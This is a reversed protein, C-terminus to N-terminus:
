GNAVRGIDTSLEFSIPLHDSGVDSDPTGDERVLSSKGVSTIIQLMEDDFSDLLTPRILVQDFMHWFYTVPTTGRYYYTGPPGDVGSGFFRWMPNYLFTREEGAVVRSSKAALRRTMVAHLCESSIVGAEFPNMNLDGVVVTRQHGVREEAERIHAPLRSALMALDDDGYYMKSPCHAAVLLFEKGIPPSIRRISVYADDHVPIVCRRPLRTIITIRQALTDPLRYRRGTRAIAALIEARYGEAEALVLLDFRHERVLEAVLHSVPRRNTNWFLVKLM